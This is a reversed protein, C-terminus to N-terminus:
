PTFRFGEEVLKVCAAVVDSDYKVGAGQKLEELAGDMGLAWRGPATCRSV